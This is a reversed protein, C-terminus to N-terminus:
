RQPLWSQGLVFIVTGNRPRLLQRSEQNPRLVVAQRFVVQWGSTRFLVQAIGVASEDNGVDSDDTMGVDLIGLDRLQIPGVDFTAMGWSGGEDGIGALLLYAVGSRWLRLEPAYSDTFGQSIDRVVAIGGSDVLFAVRWGYEVGVDRGPLDVSVVWKTSDGCLQFGQDIHTGAGGIPALATLLRPPLSDSPTARCEQVVPSQGALGSAAGCLLLLLFRLSVERCFTAV